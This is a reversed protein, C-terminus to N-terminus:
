TLIERSWSDKVSPIAGLYQFQNVKEFVIDDDNYDINKKNELFTMM